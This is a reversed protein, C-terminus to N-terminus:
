SGGCSLKINLHTTELDKESLNNEKIYQRVSEEVTDARSKWQSGISSNIRKDGMGTVNDPNGGAIQDPDHLAAQTEIWKNAEEKAKETTLGQKKYEKIKTKLAEDRVLQQQVSAKPDRGSANKKGVEKQEKLRKKYAERNELYEKITLKNLGEQQGKIQREYEKKLNEDKSFKSKIKFPPVEIMKNIKKVESTAVANAANNNSQALPRKSTNATAKGGGVKDNDLKATKSAKRMTIKPSKFETKGHLKATSLFVEKKIEEKDSVNITNATFTISSQSTIDINKDSQFSIGGKEEMSMFMKGEKNDKATMKLETVDMKIQKHNVTGLYKTPPSQTLANTDGDNRNISRVYAATEDDDPIYLKASDGVQPMVYWGTTGETTYPTNYQYAYAESEKQDQDITLHLKLTDKEVKLVKGDLSVGRLKENYITRQKLGEPKQLKYSMTVLDKELKFLQEKVGFPVQKYNVKDGLNYLQKSELEYSVYNVVSQKTVNQDIAAFTEIDKKITYYKEEEEYTEGNPLGIWVKPLQATAEPVIVGNFHSALRKIFEWDTEEYQIISKNQTAGKTLVDLYDGSYEQRTIKKFINEYTNAKNQFSRSKKQIDLLISHSMAEIKIYKNQNINRFEIDTVVGCFLLKEAQDEYQCTIKVKDQMSSGMITEDTATEELIAEMVAKAHENLTKHVQIKTVKHIPYPVEVKIDKYTLQSLSQSM